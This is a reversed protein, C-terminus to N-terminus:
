VKSDTSCIKNQFKGSEQSVNKRFIYSACSLKTGTANLSSQKSGTSCIKYPFKKQSEVKRKVQFTHCALSSKGNANVSSQKSGTSNFSCLDALFYAFRALCSGPLALCFLYALAPVFKECGRVFRKASRQVYNPVHQAFITRFSKWSQVKKKVKFTHSMIALPMKVLGYGTSCLYKTATANLSSLKAGKHGSIYLVWSIYHRQCEFLVIQPM